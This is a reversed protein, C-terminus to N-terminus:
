YRKMIFLCCRDKDPKDYSLKDAIEAMIRLGRGREDDNDEFESIERLKQELDFPPGYSWIRIEIHQEFRVADIDIPTAFPLNNHAHEVINTFGEQLLLRCQWWIKKDNIVPQNLQEFWSLVRESATIDTNIHLHIQKIM